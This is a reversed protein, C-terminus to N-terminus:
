KKKKDPCKVEKGDVTVMDGAKKGKCAKTTADGAAFSTGTVALGGAFGLIMLAALIKNKMFQEEMLITFTDSVGTLTMGHTM